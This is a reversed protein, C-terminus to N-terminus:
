AQPKPRLALIPQQDKRRAAWGVHFLGAIVLAEGNPIELRNHSRPNPWSPSQDFLRPWILPMRYGVVRTRRPAVFHLTQLQGNVLSSRECRGEYRRSDVSTLYGSLMSAMLPKVVSSGRLPQSRRISTSSVAKSATLRFSAYLASLWLFRMPVVRLQM